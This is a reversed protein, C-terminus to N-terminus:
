TSPTRSRPARTLSIGRSVYYLFYAACGTVPNIWRQKQLSRFGVTIAPIVLGAAVLIAAGEPLGPRIAAVVVSACALLGWHSLTMLLPRNLRGRGQAALMGEGHWAHKRVFTRIQKANGLHHSVISTSQFVREGCESLRRCLDVDEGSSLDSRFGGISDFVLKKVALNGAPVWRVFGEHSPAHLSHWARELWNPDPSMAYYAGVAAAGSRAFASDIEELYNCPVLCDADVFVLREGRALRAGSNRVEGVLADPNQLVRLRAHRHSSLFEWTDDTSGNDVLVLEVAPNSEVLSLLAPLTKRLYHLANYCPVVITHSFEASSEM